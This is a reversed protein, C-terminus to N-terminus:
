RESCCAAPDAAPNLRSLFARCNGAPSYCRFFRDTRTMKWEMKGANMKDHPMNDTAETNDQLMKANDMQGIAADVSDIGNWDRV